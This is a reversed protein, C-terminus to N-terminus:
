ENYLKERVQDDDAGMSNPNGYGSKVADPPNQRVTRKDLSPAAGTRIGNRLRALLQARCRSIDAQFEPSDFLPTIMIYADENNDAYYRKRVSVIEFGFKAYLSQAALNSVRVELTARQAYQKIGDELLSLLLLEGLGLGRWDPHVAITAIHIEDVLLWSGAYGLVPGQKSRRFRSWWRAPQDSAKPLSRVVLMTSNENETIEFRYSRVSWPTPFAVQEIAMVQDLDALTMPEVIYPLHEPM